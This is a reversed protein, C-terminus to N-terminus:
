RTLRHSKDYGRVSGPKTDPGGLAKTDVGRMAPDTTKDPPGPAQTLRRFKDGGPPGPAQMGHKARDGPAGPLDTLATPGGADPKAPVSPLDYANLDGIAQAAAPGAAAAFIFAAAVRGLRLM